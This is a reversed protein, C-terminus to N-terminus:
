EYNERKIFFRRTKRSFLIFLILLLIFINIILVFPWNSHPEQLVLRDFWYWSSYGASGCIVTIRGWAKGQWLGWILLLGIILWLVGSLSIYLPSVGYDELTKWFLIVKGLRLGNWITLWLIFIVLISLVIPRPSKKDTM